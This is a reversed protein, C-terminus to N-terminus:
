KAPSMATVMSNVGDLRLTFRVREGVRVSRLLGPPDATLKMTMVPWGISAIPQHKIVFTGKATDIAQIVGIGQATRIATPSKQHAMAAVAGEAFVPMASALLIGGVFIIRKNM